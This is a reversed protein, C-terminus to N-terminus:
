PTDLAPSPNPRAYTCRGLKFVGYRSAAAYTPSARSCDGTCHGNPAAFTRKSMTHGDVLSRYGNISAARKRTCDEVPQHAAQEDNEAADDPLVYLKLRQLRTPSTGKLQLGFELESIVETSRRNLVPTLPVLWESDNFCGAQLLHNQKFASLRTSTQLLCRKSTQVVEGASIALLWSCPRCPRRRKQM